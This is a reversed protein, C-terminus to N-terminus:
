VRTLIVRSVMFFLQKQRVKLATKEGVGNLSTAQKVSSIREGCRRLAAIAESLIANNWCQGIYYVVRSLCVKPTASCGGGTTRHPNQATFNQWNM